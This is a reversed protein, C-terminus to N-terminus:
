EATAQQHAKGRESGSKLDAVEKEFKLLTRELEELRLELKELRSSETQGSEVVKVKKDSGESDDERERKVGSHESTPAAEARSSVVEESSEGQKEGAISEVGEAPSVGVQVEMDQDKISDEKTEPEVDDDDDPDGATNAADETSDPAVSLRKL